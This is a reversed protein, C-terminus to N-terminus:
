QDLVPGGEGIALTGCDVSGALDGNQLVLAVSYTGKELESLPISAKIGSLEYLDSGYAEAVDTRVYRKTTYYTEASDDKLVLYAKQDACSEGELLGWAEVYLCDEEQTVLDLHGLAALEPKAVNEVTQSTWEVQTFAPGDKEFYMETDILGYDEENEWCYLYLQYVGDKMNATSFEAGYGLFESHEEGFVEAVMERLDFRERLETNVAYTERDSAFILEIKREFNPQQTVHYAWGFFSATELTGDAEMFTDNAWNTEGPTTGYDALNVKKATQKTLGSVVGNSVLLWILLFCCILLYLILSASIKRGKM